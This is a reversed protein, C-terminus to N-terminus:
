RPYARLSCRQTVLRNRTTDFHQPVIPSVPEGSLREGVIGTTNDSASGDLADQLLAECVRKASTMTRLREAIREDPSM